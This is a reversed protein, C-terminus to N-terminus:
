RAAQCDGGRASRLVDPSLFSAIAAEVVLSKAARAAQCFAELARFPQPDLYISLQTKKMAPWEFAWAMLQISNVTRAIGQVSRRIASM